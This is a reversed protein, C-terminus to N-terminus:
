LMIIIIIINYNYYYYYNLTQSSHLIKILKVTNRNKVILHM